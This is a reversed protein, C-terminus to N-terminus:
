TFGLYFDEKSRMLKEEDSSKDAYGIIHLLGHVMVRNLEHTWDVGIAVANDKVRDISILLDGSIIDGERYDFTIIDTFYDHDLFQKNANLIYSDSCYVVGIDGLVCGEEECVKTFWSVFFEPNVDLIETDEYQILVM